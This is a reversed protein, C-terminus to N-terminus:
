EPKRPIEILSRAVHELFDPISLYGAQKVVERLSKKSSESLTTKFQTGKEGWREEHSMRGKRQLNQLQKQTYNGKDKKQEQQDSSMFFLKM